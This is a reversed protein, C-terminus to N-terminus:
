DLEGMPFESKTRRPWQHRKQQMAEVNISYMNYGFCFLGLGMFARGANKCQVVGYDCCRMRSFSRGTLEMFVGTGFFAATYTDIRNLGTLRILKKGVPEEQAYFTSPLVALCLSAVLLKKSIVM